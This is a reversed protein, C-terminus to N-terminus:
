YYNPKISYARIVSREYVSHSHYNETSDTLTFYHDKYSVDPHKFGHIRNTSRVNEKGSMVTHEVIITDGVNYFRFKLGSSAHYDIAKISGDALSEVVYSSKTKIDDTLKTLEHERKSNSSCSVLFLVFLIFALQKM